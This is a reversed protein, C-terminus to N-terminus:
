RRSHLAALEGVLLRQKTEVEQQTPAKGKKLSAGVNKTRLQSRSLNNFNRLSMRTM